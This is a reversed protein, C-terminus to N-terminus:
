PEAAALTPLIEFQRLKAAACLVRRGFKTLYYKYRHGIKKIIGHTRLRKLLYSIRSASMNPLHRRLDAARFGSIAWEGRLLTLLLQRDTHDFFNFGRWSRHNDRVPRSLKDLSQLGIDPDDIDALFALYRENAARLCKRLKRMSYISKKLGALEVSTTGDRHEVRRHDKFFSVDNATCEVRAILGFKDYLKVSAPGLHHKIRTGQIRTSFDNGAQGSFAGTLKRGLFTAIQDAGVAQVATRVLQDYLPQLQHQQRFVIDTAYEVQMFSWHVGGPFHRHVPCFQEAWRDLHTHLIRANLRDALRQARQPDDISLFANDAGQFGLGEAALQCALWHHGNVYVQLRFPAWTPVRMYALGFDPDIFYFYYHKCKGDIPKLTTRGSAKDYWGRYSTCPELASFIHVLGPATGREELIQKIRSEKRFAKTKRIHEIEIGAEEALREAHEILQDRYPEAWRPYDMLRVGNARLHREMAGAYCLAPLTGTLIIRDFCKLTSAIKDSHRTIFPNDAM